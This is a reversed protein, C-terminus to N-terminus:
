NGPFFPNEDGFGSYGTFGSPMGMQDGQTNHSQQPPQATPPQAYQQGQTNQPQAGQGNPASPAPGAGNAGNTGNGNQKGNGNGSSAFEIDDIIIVTRSHKQGEDEWTEEDLRGLINVFSGEKLQMKEVRECVGGFAKVAFNVYRHNNTARSDYVRYGIKFQVATKAGNNESYRLAPAGDFGKSVSANTIIAKNM